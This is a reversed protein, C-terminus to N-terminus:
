FDFLYFPEVLSVVLAFKQLLLLRLSLDVTLARELGLDVWYGVFNGWRKRGVLSVVVVPALSLSFLQDGVLLHALLLFAREFGLDYSALLVLINDRLVRRM